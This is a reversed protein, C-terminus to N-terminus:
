PTNEKYYQELEKEYQASDMEQKTPAYYTEVEEKSGRYVPGSQNMQNNGPTWPTEYFPENAPEHVVETEQSGTAVTEASCCNNACLDICCDPLCIGNPYQYHCSTNPSGIDNRYYLPAGMSNNLQELANQLEGYAKLAAIESFLQEAEYKLIDAEHLKGRRQENKAALTLRKNVSELEKSLVYTQLNDHYVLYSLRVQAMVGLSLALRSRHALEKRSCAVDREKFKKPIDLLNWTVRLGAQWWQHFLLFNNNDMYDGSFVELGPMMQVYAARAEDVRILGEADLSNLEPRLTLALCELQNIDDLQVDTSFNSLEELEIHVCPALGMLLKLESLASDYEREYLQLEKHINILQNENRLGQILSIRGANMNEQLKAQQDIAKDIVEHSRGVAYKAIVAKWYQRLVDVVLNQKQREYKYWEMLMKSCEQRSRYFALGFDVLNYVLDINWRNTNNQSSISFFSAPPNPNEPSPITQSFSATNENRGWNEGNFIINPLMNLRERTAIEKQIAYEQEQVRLSLNQCLAIDIIDDMTLPRDPLSNAQNALFCLDKNKNHERLKQYDTRHMRTCGVIMMAMIPFFTLAKLVNSRM